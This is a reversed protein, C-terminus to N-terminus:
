FIFGIVFGFFLGLLFIFKAPNEETWNKIIQTYKKITEM